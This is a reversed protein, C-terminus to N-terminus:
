EVGRGWNRVAARYTFNPLKLEARPVEFWIRTGTNTDSHVGVKVDTGPVELTEATPMRNAGDVAGSLSANTLSDFGSLQSPALTMYITEARGPSDASLVMSIFDSNDLATDFHCPGFIYADDSTGPTLLSAGQFPNAGLTVTFSAVHGEQSAGGGVDRWGVGRFSGNGTTRIFLRGNRQICLEGLQRPDSAHLRFTATMGGGAFPLHQSADPWAYWAPTLSDDANDNARKLDPHGIVLGAATKEANVANEAIERRGVEGPSIRLAAPNRWATGGYRADLLAEIRSGTIPAIGDQQLLVELRQAVVREVLANLDQGGVTNVDGVANEIPRAARSVYRNLIQAAGSNLWADAFRNGGPSSPRDYFYAAIQVTAADQLAEPAEPARDRVM